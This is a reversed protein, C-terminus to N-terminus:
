LKEVIISCVSYGAGFSCIVGKQAPELDNDLNNLMQEIELLVIPKDKCKIKLLSITLKLSEKDSKEHLKSLEYQFSNSKNINPKIVVTKKSNLEAKKKNCHNEVILNNDSNNIQNLKSQEEKENTFPTIININKVM